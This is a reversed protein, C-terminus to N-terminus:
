SNGLARRARREVLLPVFDRLRLGDFHRYANVVASEVDEPTKDAHEDALRGHVECIQRKEDNRGGVSTM